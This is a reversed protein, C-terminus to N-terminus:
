LYLKWYCKDRIYTIQIVSILHFLVHANKQWPKYDEIEVSVGGLLYFYFFGISFLSLIIGNTCETNNFCPLIAAIITIHVWIKDLNKILKRRFTNPHWIHSHNSVSLALMIININMSIVDNYYFALNIPYLFIFSSAVTRIM